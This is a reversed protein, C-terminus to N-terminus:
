NLTVPASALFPVCMGAMMYRTTAATDELDRKKQVEALIEMVLPEISKYSPIDTRMDGYWLENYYYRILSKASKESFAESFKKTYDFDKIIEKEAVLRGAYATCFELSAKQFFLVNNSSLAALKMDNPCGSKIAEIRNSLGRYKPDALKLGTIKSATSLFRDCNKVSAGALKFPDEAVQEDSNQEVVSKRAQRKNSNEASCSLVLSAVSLLISIKM